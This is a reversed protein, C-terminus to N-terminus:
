ARSSVAKGAVDVPVIGAHEHAHRPADKTAMEVAALDDDGDAAMQESRRPQSSAEGGAIRRHGHGIGGPREGLATRSAAKVKGYV